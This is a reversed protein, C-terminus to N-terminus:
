REPWGRHGRVDRCRRSLADARCWRGPAGPRATLPKGSHAAFWSMRLACGRGPAGRGAAFRDAM